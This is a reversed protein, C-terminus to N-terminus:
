KEFALLTKYFDDYIASADISDYFTIPRNGSDKSTIITQTSAMEPRIFAAVLALDWLVRNQRGGDLHDKWRKQLFRGLFHDGINAEMEDFRVEMAAAVNLPMIHMEVESDLLYDLAFPDMLPNFDNRKLVHTEFNLTTGLWYVKLGDAIEPAIFLASAVNTLAGLALITLQGNEKAQEIIEYVAASHQARDGWDYMRATAGRLTKIQLGMEGLLQQNLRHSNEMSNEVSWHSTQWHAANLATVEVSPELLIRVLAYLDDVENGTDADVIIKQQAPMLFTGVLFSFIGLVLSRHSNTTTM